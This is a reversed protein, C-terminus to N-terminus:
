GKPKEEKSKEGSDTTKNLPKRILCQKITQLLITTDHPKSLFADAGSVLLADELNKRASLFIIPIDKTTNNEKLGKLLQFGDMEPMLFDSIIIDPKTEPRIKDWADKGDKAQFVEFLREILITRLLESTTPDDEVILVKKGDGFPKNIDGVIDNKAALPTEQKEPSKDNNM